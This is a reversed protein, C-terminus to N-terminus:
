KTPRRRKVLHKIAASIGSEVRDATDVFFETEMAQTYLMLGGRELEFWFIRGAWNNWDGNKASLAIRHSDRKDEGTYELPIGKRIMQLCAHSLLTKQRESPSNGDSEEMETFVYAGIDEGGDHRVFWVDGGHGPVYQLVEGAVGEKRVSLYKAAIMMGRTDGLKTTVVKLGPKVDNVNM